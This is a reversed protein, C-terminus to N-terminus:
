QSYPCINRPRSVATGRIASPTGCLFVAHRRGANTREHGAATAADAARDRTFQQRAACGHQEDVPVLGRQPARGLAECAMAVADSRQRGVQGAGRVPLPEAGIRCRRPPM